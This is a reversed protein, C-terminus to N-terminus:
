LLKLRGTIADIRNEPAPGIGVCTKTGPPIQTLGADEILAVPLGASRAQQLLELLEKEGSCKLVTKKQGGALWENKYQSKDAATVAAHAVQAALKGKGLKLDARVIIAQKHEM